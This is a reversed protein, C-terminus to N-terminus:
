YNEELIIIIIITISVIKRLFSHLEEIRKLKFSLNKKYM